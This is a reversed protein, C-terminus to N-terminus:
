FAVNSRFGLRKKETIRVREGTKPNVGWREPIEKKYFKGFERLMIEDGDGVSDKIVDTAVNVVHEVTGKEIGSIAAVKRIFDSKTM